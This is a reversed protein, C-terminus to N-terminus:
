RERERYIYIHIYVFRYLIGYITYMIYYLTCGKPRHRASRHAIRVIATIAVITSVIKMTNM